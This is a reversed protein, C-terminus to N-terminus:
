GPHLLKHQWCYQEADRTKRSCQQHNYHMEFHLYRGRVYRRSVRYTDKVYVFEQCYGPKTLRDM